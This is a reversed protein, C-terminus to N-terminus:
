GSDNKRLNKQRWGAIRAHDGCTLDEPVRIGEFLEPRTYLPYERQGLFFESGSEYLASEANGLSGEILRASADLITLCALDGGSLIFSGVSVEEDAYQDIFRQDIGSFRGAVLIVRKTKSIEGLQEASKQCFKKAGASTVVVHRASRVPEIRTVADRLPEPRLVMGEGGGYPKDDVSAHNDVAYDRLNCVEINLLDSNLAKCIPGFLFYSKIFQPHVTVIAFKRM